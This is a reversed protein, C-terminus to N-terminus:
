PVGAQREPQTVTQTVPPPVKAAARTSISICASILDAFDEADLAARGVFVGDMGADELIRPAMALTVGGGYLVNVEAAAHPGALEQLATRLAIQIKLIHGTDAIDGQEGVAWVPEYAVLIRPMLAPAVGYLAIRLQRVCAEREAGFQKEAATEGICVLATMGAALAAHVKRNVEEDTEGLARREAHGIQVLGVGLDVLMRASIEGTYAGEVEWHMNQAGVMFRGEAAKVVAQLATYPPLVFVHDRVDLKLAELRQALARAYEEAQAETKNMKWNTGFM